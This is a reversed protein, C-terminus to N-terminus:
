GSSPRLMPIEQGIDPLFVNTLKVAEADFDSEGTGSLALSGFSDSRSGYHSM